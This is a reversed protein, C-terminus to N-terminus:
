AYYEEAKELVMVIDNPILREDFMGMPTKASTIGDTNTQFFYEMEETKENKRVETFLM